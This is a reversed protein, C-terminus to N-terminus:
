PVRTEVIFPLFMPASPQLMALQRLRETAFLGALEAYDSRAHMRLAPLLLEEEDVSHERLLHLLEQARERFAYTAPRTTILASLARQQRHHEARLEVVLTALLGSSERLLDTGTGGALAASTEFRGLVIDEAECHALLGLRVEDVSARVQAVTATPELLTELERELDCHDRRLLAFFDTSM